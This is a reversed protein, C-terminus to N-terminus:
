EVTLTGTMNSHIDCRFDYSGPDSPAQQELTDGGELTLDLGADDVTFTHTTSDENTIVLAAQPGVTLEDPDFAFDRITVTGEGGGGEDGGDDAAETTETTDSGSDDTGEDEDDGCAGLGLALLTVGAAAAAKWTPTRM